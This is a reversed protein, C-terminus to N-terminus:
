EIREEARFLMLRSLKPIDNQEAEAVLSNLGERPIRWNLLNIARLFVPDNPDPLAALMLTAEPFGLMVAGKRHIDRYSYIILAERYVGLLALRDQSRLARLLAEVVHADGTTDLFGARRRLHAAFEQVREESAPGKWEKEVAVPVCGQIRLVINLMNALVGGGSIFAADGLEFGIKDVIRLVNTLPVALLNVIDPITGDVLLMDSGQSTSVALARQGNDGAELNLRVENNGATWKVQAVLKM